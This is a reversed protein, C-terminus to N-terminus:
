LGRPSGRAGRRRVIGAITAAVGLAIALLGMRADDEAVACGFCGRAFKPSAEAARADSEPAITEGAALCV